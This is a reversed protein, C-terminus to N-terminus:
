KIVDIIKAAVYGVALWKGATVIRQVRGPILKRLAANERAAAALAIDAPITVSPIALKVVSASAIATDAGAKMSDAKALAADALALTEKVQLTDTLNVPSGLLEARKTSYSSRAREYKVALSKYAVDMSDSHKVARAIEIKASKYQNEAHVREERARNAEAKMRGKEEAFMSSLLFGVIAVIFLICTADVAYRRLNSNM